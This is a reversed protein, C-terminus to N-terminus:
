HTTRCYETWNFLCVCLFLGGGGGGGGGHLLLIVRVLCKVRAEIVSVSNCNFVTPFCLGHLSDNTYVDYMLYPTRAAGFNLFCADSNEYWFSCFYMHLTITNYKLSIRKRSFMQQCKSCKLVKSNVFHECCVSFNLQLWYCGLLRLHM